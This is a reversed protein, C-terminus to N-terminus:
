PTMPYHYNRHIIGRTALWHLKLLHASLSLSYLFLVLFWTRITLIWYGESASRGSSSSCRLQKRKLSRTHKVGGWKKTVLRKFALAVDAQPLSLVSRREELLLTLFVGLLHSGKKSAITLGSATTHGEHILATAEVNCAELCNAPAPLPAPSPTSHHVPEAFSNFARQYSVMDKLGPNEGKWWKGDVRRQWRAIAGIRGFENLLM